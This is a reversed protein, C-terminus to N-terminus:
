GRAARKLAAARNTQEWSFYTRASAGKGAKVPMRGFHGYASTPRYIPKRLDLAKIIGNPTLDFTARVAAM